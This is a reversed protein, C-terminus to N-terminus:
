TGGLCSNDERPFFSNDEPATAKRAKDLHTISQTCALVQYETCLNGATQLCSFYLMVTVGEDMATLSVGAATRYQERQTCDGHGQSVQKREQSTLPAPIDTCRCLGELPPLPSPLSPPLSLPPLTLCLREGDRESGWM